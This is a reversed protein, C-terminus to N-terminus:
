GAVERLLARWDAQFRDHSFLRMATNRANHGIRRTADPDRLLFRLQERLEDASDAYFGNVGNEIFQDVDHNRASVPVLGCLMAEGRARPMPSRLTPNFYVSYRRLEDVYNRFKAWAYANGQYGVHPEPVRLNHPKLEEYCGDFVKRYLFYGRYHPRSFVLTGLPALIGREYTAPPFEAPDFGHWIVRSRRFQWEGAAQHSNCVVPIDGLFDVLRAREPEIVQMLDAGAYGPDYQGHFQPTGHCVAVKPLDVHEVFWRFAAGWEPGIVGNTNQPALVNEDFHLIALDFGRLDVQAHHAFAVNDPLPRQGYEWAESIPSGLGTLLRVEVPLKYLEYQHPVHWRYSVVRYTRRRLAPGTRCGSQLTTHLRTHYARVRHDRADTSARLRAHTQRAWDPAVLALEPHKDFLRAFNVLSRAAKHADMPEPLPSVHISFADAVFKIRAGRLYLRYGAEIDEWGFGSAPAASYSFQPDFLPGDLAERKISFNRTVCNLFSSRNVPDQLQADLLAQQPQSEYRELLPLPDAGMSEINMPGIVVDCDDFAHAEVHCRVCDRSLMCDADVVLVIDGRAEEIGRNRAHCNGRNTAHAVVRMSLPRAEALASRTQIHREVIRASDDPSADDVFVVEIDGEYSQREYSALVAPLEAAKNYLIAVISVTPRHLRRYTQLARHAIQRIADADRQFGPQQTLWRAAPVGHVLPSAVGAVASCLAMAQLRSASADDEACWNRPPMGPGCLSVHRRELASASSLLYVTPVHTRWALELMRHVGAHYALGDLLLVDVDRRQLGLLAQKIGSEDRV